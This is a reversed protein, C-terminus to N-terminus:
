GPVALQSARRASGSGTPGAVTAGPVQSWDTTAASVTRRSCRTAASAAKSSTTATEGVLYDNGLGGILAEDDGGGFLRDNGDGGVLKDMGGLGYLQDAGGLGCIVDRKRTRLVDRGSTGIIFDTMCRDVGPGGRVVDNGRVRDRVFLHDVIPRV